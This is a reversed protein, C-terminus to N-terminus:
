FGLKPKKNLVMIENQMEPNSHYYIFRVKQNFKFQKCKIQLYESEIKYKIQTTIKYINEIQLDPNSDKIAIFFMICTNSIKFTNPIQITVSM